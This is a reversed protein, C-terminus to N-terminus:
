NDIIEILENEISNILFNSGYVSLHTSDNYVLNGSNVQLCQDNKCFYDFPDFFYIKLKESNIKNINERLFSNLKKKAEHNQSMKVIDKKLEFIESNFYTDCISKDIYFPRTYCSVLDGYSSYFEPVQGIVIIKKVNTFNENKELDQIKKVYKKAIKNLEYSPMQYDYFKKGIIITNPLKFNINCDVINSDFNPYTKCFDEFTILNKNYKKSFTKFGNYLVKGHSDGVLILDLKNADGFLCDVNKQIKKDRKDCVGGSKNNVNAIINKEFDSLRFSWGNTQIVHISLFILITYGFILKKNFLNIKKNLFFKEIYNYSLHGLFVSVIICIIKEFTNVEFYKYYKYFILVPWHYLYLSFSINGLYNIFSNKLIISSLYANKAFILFTAGLAPYLANIGPFLTNKNFSLASYLIFLLGLIFIVENIILNKFRKKNISLFYGFIFEFIRFPSLFFITDSVYKGYLFKNEFIPGVSIIYSNIFISLIIFLILFINKYILKRFFFSIFWVIIPWIIYFHYEVGLSWTHLLPKFYSSIDFYNSQTWFYFNPILLLNGIISDSFNIFHEPSLITSFAIFSFLILFILGPFIRRIRNLLFNKYNNISFTQNEIIKGILYGSIVFFIDVGVFGGTFPYIEYHFLIVLIIAIGRLGNVEIEFPRKKKLNNM